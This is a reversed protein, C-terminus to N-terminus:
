GEYLLGDTGKYICGVPIGSKGVKPLGVLRFGASNVEIWRAGGASVKALGPGLEIYAGNLAGSYLALTSGAAYVEPGDAFKMSGGNSSPDLTIKGVQIKGGALVRITGTVDVNGTIKGAGIFEWPGNQTLKGTVTVNGAIEGNGNLSWPGEIKFTGNVVTAGDIRLSGVIEVRGGSDVRLTGGVFRMRGDTISANELPRANQLRRVERKLERIERFADSLDDAM